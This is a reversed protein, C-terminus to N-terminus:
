DISAQLFHPPFDQTLTAARPLIEHIGKQLLRQLNYNFLRKRTSERLDPSLLKTERIHCSQPLVTARVRTTHVRSLLNTSPLHPRQTSRRTGAYQYQSFPHNLFVKAVRGYLFGRSPNNCCPGTRIRSVLFNRSPTYWSVQLM